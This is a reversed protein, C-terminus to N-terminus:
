RTSRTTPPLCSGGQNGPLSIRSTVDQPAQVGPSIEEGRPAAIRQGLDPCQWTMVNCQWEGATDASVAVSVGRLPTLTDTGADHSGNM